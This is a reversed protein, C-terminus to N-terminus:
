ARSLPNFGGDGLIRKAEEYTEEHVNLYPMVKGTPDDTNYSVKGKILSVSRIYDCGNNPAQGIISIMIIDARAPFNEFFQAHDPDSNILGLLIETSEVILKRSAYIDLVYPYDFTIDLLNINDKGDKSCGSGIGAAYLEKSKMKKTFQMLIHDRVKERESRPDSCGYLFCMTIFFLIKRILM